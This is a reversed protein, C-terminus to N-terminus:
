ESTDLARWVFEVLDMVRVRAKERRAEATLTRECQPCASVIVQAETELAQGFRRQSLEGVLDPNFTEVNGGGGCCLADQRNDSMETFSLEPISQIVRRPADYLDNKRGLDCPDHYTVSRPVNKLRLRGEEVLEDLMQTSHVVEVGLEEGLIEPYFHRWMHYCAPCTTVVRRAELERVRAVNHRITEEARSGMGAMLLPYGCCWEEGGLATFSEGAAELIQVFAQPIIYTMPFFSSVCGVFYLTHAGKERELGEPVSELNESWMLRQTNDDASINHTTLINEGLARLAQIGADGQLADGKEDMAMQRLAQTLRAISIENPCRAGCTECHLCYWISPSELLPDKLGLQVMRVMEAPRYPMAPASPCGASCKLCYYCRSLDEGSRQEVEAVFDFDLTSTTDGKGIEMPSGDEIEFVSEFEAVIPTGSV